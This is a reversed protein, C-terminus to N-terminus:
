QMHTFTNWRWCFRAPTFGHWMSQSDRNVLIPLLYCLARSYPSTKSFTNTAHPTHCVCFAHLGFLPTNSLITTWIPTRRSFPSFLTSLSPFSSPLDIPLRSPFQLQSFALCARYCHLVSSASVISCHRKLVKLAWFIYMKISCRMPQKDREKERETRSTRSVSLRRVSLCVFLGVSVLLFFRM